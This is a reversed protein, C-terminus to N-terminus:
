ESAERREALITNIRAIDRRVKGIKSTDDLQNALNDFRLKWLERQLDKHMGELEETPKERVETAKM